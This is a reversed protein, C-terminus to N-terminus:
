NAVALAFPISSTQITGSSLNSLAVELTYNGAELGDPRFTALLKDLGKIGTITREQLALVGTDLVTGDAAVVTSDLLIEGEGLNYAVICVAAEQRVELSPLAAPIYPEGNVTFPYVVTNRYETQSSERVLFWNKGSDPFFPPLLM